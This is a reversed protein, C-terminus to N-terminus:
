SNDFSHVDTVLLIPKLVKFSLNFKVVLRSGLLKMIAIGLALFKSLVNEVFPVSDLVFDVGFIVLMPLKVITPLLKLFLEILLFRCNSSNNIYISLYLLPPGLLKLLKNAM